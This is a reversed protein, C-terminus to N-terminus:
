LERMDLNLIAVGNTSVRVTRRHSRYGAATIIVQYSGPPLQIEYLGREDSEGKAVEHGDARISVSAKLAESGFTRTVCRLLGTQSNAELMQLALPATDSAVEVARHLDMFGAASVSLEATGPPAPSFRFRGQGDSITELTNGHSSLVVRAEPLPAGSAEMILGSLTLALHAQTVPAEAIAPPTLARETASVASQNSRSPPRQARRALGYRLGLALAVRPELPVLPASASLSPRQSSSTTVSTEIQLGNALFYRAGLSVRLPSQLLTPARRRTLLDASLDLFAEAHEAVRWLAGLVALVADSESLNLSIRDGARLRALDAPASAASNDFRYGLSALLTWRASRAHYAALVKLDVSTAALDLSPARTGPVWVLASVGLSVLEHAPLGPPAASRRIAHGIRLQLRPDGVATRDPGSADAPHLDYRGDLRLSLALWARPVFALGLTGAVRHHSGSTPPVAETFGYGASASAALLHAPCRPLESYVGGCLGDAAIGRSLATAAARAGIEQAWVPSAIAYAHLACLLGLRLFSSVVHNCRSAM